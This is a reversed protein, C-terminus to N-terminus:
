KQKEHAGNTKSGDWTCIVDPYGRVVHGVGCAM